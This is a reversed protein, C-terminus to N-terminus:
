SVPQKQQYQIISITNQIWSEEDFNAGNCSLPLTVTILHSMTQSLQMIEMWLKKAFEKTSMISSTRQRSQIPELQELTTRIEQISTTTILLVIPPIGIQVLNEVSSPRLDVVPHCGKEM